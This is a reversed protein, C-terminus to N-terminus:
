VASGWYGVALRVELRLRRREDLGGAGGDWRGGHPIHRGPQRKSEKGSNTVYQATCLGDDSGLFGSSMRCLTFIWQARVQDAGGDFSPRGSPTTSAVSPRGEEGEQGEAAEERGELMPVPQGDRSAAAIAETPDLDDDNVMLPGAGDRSWDSVTPTIYARGTPAPHTASEAVAM